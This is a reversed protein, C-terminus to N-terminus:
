PAIRSGLCAHRVAVAPPLEAEHNAEPAGAENPGFGVSAEHSPAPARALRAGMGLGSGVIAERNAWFYEM